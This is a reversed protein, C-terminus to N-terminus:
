PNERDIEFIKGLLPDNAYGVGQRHGHTATNEVPWKSQTICMNMM